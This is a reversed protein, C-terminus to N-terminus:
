GPHCFGTSIGLGPARVRVTDASQLTWHSSINDGQYSKYDGVLYAEPMSALTIKIVSALLSLTLSVMGQAPTQLQMLLGVSVSKRGSQLRLTLHQM